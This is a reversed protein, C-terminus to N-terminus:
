PAHLNWQSFNAEASWLAFACSEWRPGGVYSQLLPGVTGRKRQWEEVLPRLPTAFGHKRRDVIDTGLLPRYVDKLIRKATRPGFKFGVPLKFAYESLAKDLFPSRVELGYRMSMRDTKPLLDSFLYTKANLYLIQQGIEHGQLKEEWAWLEAEIKEWGLDLSQRLVEETFYSNWHLLRRALPYHLAERLRQLTGLRSGYSQARSRLRGVPALLLRLLVGHEQGFRAAQFRRYGGFVEDGGDGSLAVKVHEVAAQCLAATPVLSSDPYPEDFHKLLQEVAQVQGSTGILTKHASGIRSAVLEAFPAENYAGYDPFGMAFTKLPTAGLMGQAEFAVASSDLGGSLFCGLPVDAVLRKKVASQFLERVREQAQGHGVHRELQGLPLDWYTQPRGPGQATVRLCQGGQLRTINRYVTRAGFAAGFLYYEGLSEPLIELPLGLAVLGKIESAFAFIEGDWYLYLPKKGFPDVALLMERRIQHFQAFAFMGDFRELARESKAELLELLAETDSSTRWPFAGFESRLDQYNYIEGNFTVVSQGSRSVMPQAAREQLDIIALRRHLLGIRESSDFWQGSGDPGRHALAADARALRARTDTLKGAIDWLGAIGCM